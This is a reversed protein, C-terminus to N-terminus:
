GEIPQAAGDRRLLFRVDRWRVCRTAFSWVWLM